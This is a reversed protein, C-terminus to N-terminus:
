TGANEYQQRDLLKQWQEDVQKQIDTLGNTAEDSFLQAFRGQHKMYESVAVTEEPVHTLSFRGNEAEFLPFYRTEVALRALQISIDPDHKHGPPCPGDIMIFRFGSAKKAKELKAQLDTLFAPSATACYSLNHAEVIGMLNKAATKKGAPDTTTKVGKPTGTSSQVGTNMYAANNNCIYLINEGRAAAGSLAQLGIDFTGGDGALVVVPTDQKGQRDLAHRVGTATAAAAAFLTHVVTGKMLNMPNPGSIISFCCAPVVYVTEPGMVYSVYRALLTWGCGRCSLAGSYINEENILFKSAPSM